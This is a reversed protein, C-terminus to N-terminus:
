NYLSESESESPGQIDSAVEKCLHSYWQELSCVHDLNTETSHSRRFGLRFEAWRRQDINGHPEQLLSPRIDYRRTDMHEALSQVRILLETVGSERTRNM